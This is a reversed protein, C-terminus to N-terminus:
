NWGAIHQLTPTERVSLPQAAESPVTVTYTFSTSEGPAVQSACYWTELGEYSAQAMGAQSIVGSYPPYMSSDFYGSENDITISGGAPAVLYLFLVMDGSERAVGNHNDVYSPLKKAQDETLNNKYTTTVQYSTTGDPNKSGEGVQTDESLYWSLKAGSDDNVYVGLEPTSPDQKLNGAVGMKEMLQEQDPDAMWVLLNGNQASRKLTDGLAGLDASGVHSFVQDAAQAAVAAFYADQKAVPINWYVDHLLVTAANAGDITTGDEAKFGGVVSLMDQLFIPDIAIVGDVSGKKNGEWIASLLESSRTFDPTYGVDVRETILRTGFLQKEEDTIEPAPYKGDKYNKLEYPTYFDGVKMKGDTVTLSGMSGALGGTAHIEANNQAVILYTKTQGNAGLMPPLTGSLESSMAVVQNMSSLLDQAKQLPENIQAVHDAHVSNIDNTARDVVPAISQLSDLLTTLTNVDISGDSAVLHSLSAGELSATMPVLGNAALDDFSACLTRVAQVDNGYVPMLSALTWAWGSTRNHMDSASSAIATASNHAGQTDGSLLQDKLSSSQATVTAADSKVAQADSYLAYASVGGVGILVALVILVVVLVRRGRHRKKRGGQSEKGLSSFYDEQSGGFGQPYASGAPPYGANGSAAYGSGASGQRGYPGQQTRTQGGYPAQQGYPQQGAPAYGAAPQQRGVRGTPQDSSPQGYSGGAGGGRQQGQGMGGVGNTGMPDGPINVHRGHKGYEDNRAM